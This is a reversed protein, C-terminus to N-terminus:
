SDSRLFVANVTELYASLILLIYHFPWAVESLVPSDLFYWNSLVDYPYVSQVTVTSSADLVNAEDNGVVESRLSVYM